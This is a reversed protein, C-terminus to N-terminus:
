KVLVKTAVNGQRRIFIGNEPNAVRVGQLNYYEVPANTATTVDEIGTAGPITFTLVAEYSNYYAKGSTPDMFLMSKAPFNVSVDNGNKSMTAPTYQISQGTALVYYSASLYSYIDGQQNAYVGTETLGVVVNNPDTADVLMAPSEEGIWGFSTYMAVLPNIVKFINDGNTSYYVDVDAFDTLEAGQEDFMPAVINDKYKGNTALTWPDVFKGGPLVICGEDKSSGIYWQTPDTQYQSNAPAEPWRLILAKAPIKIFGDELTLVLEPAYTIIDEKSYDELLVASQSAIYTVGDVNDVIATQQVPITVFAPDSADVILEAGGSVLDPWVGVLKYIGAHGQAEMVTVDVAESSAGYMGVMASAMYKGDGVKAWTYGDYVSAKAPAKAVVAEKAITRLGSTFDPIPTATPSIALENASACFAVAAALALTYLKKM